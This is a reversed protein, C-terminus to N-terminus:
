DAASHDAYPTGKYVRERLYAEFPLHTEATNYAIRELLRVLVDLAVSQVGPPRETPVAPVFRGKADRAM